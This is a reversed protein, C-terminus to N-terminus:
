LDSVFFTRQAYQIREDVCQCDVLYILKQRLRQRGVSRESQFSFYVECM